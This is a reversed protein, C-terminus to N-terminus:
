PESKLILSYVVAFIYESENELFPDLTNSRIGTRLSPTPYIYSLTEPCSNPLEPVPDKM